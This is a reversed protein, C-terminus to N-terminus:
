RNAYLTRYAATGLGFLAAYLAAIAALGGYIWVPSISRVVLGGFEAVRVAVSRLADLTALQPALAQDLEPRGFNPLLWLIAGILAASSVVFAARAALPWHAFDQQWWPLAARRAIEGLVRAELGRPAPRDPLARLERHIFQELQQEPSVASASAQAALRAQFRAEFGAPAKRPPLARLERHMWKELEEPTMNEPNM